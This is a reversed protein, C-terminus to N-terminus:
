QAIEGILNNNSDYERITGSGSRDLRCFVCDVTYGHGCEETVAGTGYPVAPIPSPKTRTSM